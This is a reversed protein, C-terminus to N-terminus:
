HLHGSSPFFAARWGSRDFPKWDDEPQSLRDAVAFHVAPNVVLGCHSGHVEINDTREGKKELCNRWAVIGDSKSYIAACPVPPPECAEDLRQRMEPSDIKHGTLWEYLRWVNSARPNGTFPSGLTVVHRVSDPDNRAAERAMIGGLSWGVLSVKQGTAERVDDIRRTLREGRLGISHHDLNRGLEWAYVDYGLTALYRRLLVTSGDTATFGPLVMVPHGDGKSACRLLPAAWPLTSLEATARFLEAAALALPPPAIRFAEVAM